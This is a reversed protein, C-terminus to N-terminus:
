INIICINLTGMQWNAGDLEASGNAQEIADAVERLAKVIDEQTGEGLVQIKYTDM